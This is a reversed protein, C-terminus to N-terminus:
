SKRLASGIWRTQTTMRSPLRTKAPRRSRDGWRVWCARKPGNSKERCSRKTWPAKAAVSSRTHTQWASCTKCRHTLFRSRRIQTPQYRRSARPLNVTHASSRCLWGTIAWTLAARAEGKKTSLLASRSMIKRVWSSGAGSTASYWHAWKFFLPCGNLCCFLSWITCFNRGTYSNSRTHNLRWAETSISWVAFYSQFQCGLHASTFSPWM